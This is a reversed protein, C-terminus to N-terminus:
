ELSAFVMMLVGIVALGLCVWRLQRAAIIRGRAAGQAPINNSNGGSWLVVFLTVAVVGAGSALHEGTSFLSAAM